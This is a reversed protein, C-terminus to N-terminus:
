VTQLSPFEHYERMAADMADFTRQKLAPLDAITLGEVPITPLYVIRCVGPTLSTLNVKPLRQRSDVYLVPKIPTQTEIAIKFAGNHFQGLPQDGKNFTGEPFILVSVGEKLMAIMERVSKSRGAATKRDVAVVSAKYIIGFFPVKVLEIKGLPRFPLRMVKVAIAADLYSSHNVCYICPKDDNPERYERKFWIGVSPFWVHAWFRLFYFVINGGKVKGLIFSALIIPPLILFMIALFVIIAYITYIVQFPKVIRFM